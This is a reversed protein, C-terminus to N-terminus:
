TWTPSPVSAEANDWRLAPTNVCCNEDTITITKPTHIELCQRSTGYEPLAAEWLNWLFEWVFFYLNEGSPHPRLETLILSCKFRSESGSEVWGLQTIRPLITLRELIDPGQDAFHTKYCALYMVARNHLNFSIICVVFKPCHKGYLSPQFNNAIM